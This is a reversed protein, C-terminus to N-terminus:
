TIEFMTLGNRIYKLRKGSISAMNLVNFDSAIHM